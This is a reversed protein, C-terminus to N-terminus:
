PGVEGEDSVEEPGLSLGSSAKQRGMRKPREVAWLEEAKRAADLTMVVSDRKLLQEANILSVPLTWIKKLNRASLVVNEQPEGTVILASTTIGLNDLLEIMAKTSPTDMPLSELLILRESRAKESLVCKLALHRMRRPMHVRHDRPHPGFVIGGHRWQPSRISGQRARGTGKQAWPKRGGGSVQGRTKTSHTGQRKNLQYMVVAQHVLPSNVPVGFLADSMQATDVVEGKVNKVPLEM